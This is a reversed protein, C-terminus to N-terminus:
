LNTSSPTPQDLPAGGLEQLRRRRERWAEPDLQRTAGQADLEMGTLIEVWIRIREPTGQVVTPLSWIRATQDFSCSVFTSGKPDFAVDAVINGHILHPGIPKGTAVDWLRAANDQSATLVIRGDPSFAAASVAGGHLMAASRPLGSNADWLRATKDTGGTLVTQGDPSFLAVDITADHNLREGLATGSASDWIGAWTDNSGATLVKKGDGSLRACHCAGNYPFSLEAVGRAINWLRANGDNCGTLLHRGDPHFAIRAVTAAHALPPGLSRGTAADWIRASTDTSGTAIWKGDPSFGVATVRGQHVLGPSLLTRSQMHLRRAIQGTSRVVALEGNPSLLINTIMGVHALPPADPTGTQANWFHIAGDQANFVRTGTVLTKGDPSFAAVGVPDNHRFIMIPRNRSPAQRLQILKGDGVAVALWRGDPSLAAGPVAHSLNAVQGLLEGSLVHWFRTVGDESGTLVLEGDPSFASTLVAAPHQFIRLAAGTATNWLRLTRDKSGTVFTRGDPSFAVCMVTDGHTCAIDRRGGTRANWLRATRDRGGAVISQGDPSFAVARASQALVFSRRRSTGAEWLYVEHSEGATAITQGDPSFAAAKVAGAHQMPAGVPSGTRIDWLRAMGDEGATLAWRGDPSIALALLSSGHRLPTGAPVKEAVAWNHVTGDAGATLLYSSDPSFVMARVPAPLELWGAPPSTWVSWAALNMRLIRQLDQVEPPAMQLGRALWLLGLHVDGQKARTLGQELAIEASVTRSERLSRGQYLVFNVALILFAAVAAVALASMSALAPKRRCWRWLREATNIPRTRIPKGELFLHLDHSMESAHQYRWAPKKAMAKLCITELDPPVRSNLQRPALPEQHLVHHIVVTRSGRFPLEGCLLQYLLVGLSYVDSRADVQHSQGYAQEPSMYAPTGVIQGEVTLVSEAEHRLALGFDVIVPRRLGADGGSSEMMINSPKIDRHVLGRSHAHQLADAVDAVLAVSERFTLQGVELVHKLSPGEIFDSVLIPTGDVSVVDYLRVINSHRLQAAARAERKFRELLAGEALLARHPIKVAVTRELQSDHARWVEGFGGRGVLEILRFRGFM